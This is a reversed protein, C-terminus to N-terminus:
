SEKMLKAARLVGNNIRQYTGCRCINASMALRVEERTPDPHSVLYAAATMIQGPQCYGCQPVSAQKWAEQVPHLSNPDALGEITTISKDELESVTVLCSRVAKGEVHVTCAGCIGKGCGYKTGTLGLHDRLFSLLSSERWAKQVFFQKKNIIM